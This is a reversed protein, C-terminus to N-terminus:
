IKKWISDKLKRVWVPVSDDAYQVVHRICVYCRRKFAYM